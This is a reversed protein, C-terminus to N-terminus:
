RPNGVRGEVRIEAARAVADHDSRGVDREVEAAVRDRAVAAVEPDIVRRAMVPDLNRVPRDLAEVHAYL